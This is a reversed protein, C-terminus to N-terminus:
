DNQPMNKYMGVASFRVREDIKSYGWPFPTLALSLTPWISVQRPGDCWSPFISSDSQAYMTARSKDTRDFPVFEAPHPARASTSAQPFETPSATKVLYGFSRVESRVVPSVWTHPIAVRASLARSISFRADPARSVPSLTLPPTSGAPQPAPQLCPVFDSQCASKKRPFGLQVGWPTLPALIKCISVPTM